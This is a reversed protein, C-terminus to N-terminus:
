YYFKKNDFFLFYSSSFPSSIQFKATKVYGFNLVCPFNGQFSFGKADGGGSTHTQSHKNNLLQEKTKNKKWWMMFNFSFLLEHVFTYNLFALKLGFTWMKQGFTLKSFINANITCKFLRRWSLEM